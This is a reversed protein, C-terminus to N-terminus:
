RRDMGERAGEHVTGHGPEKRAPQQVADGGRGVREGRERSADGPNEDDGYYDNYGNDVGERVVEPQVSGAPKEAAGTTSSAPQSQDLPVVDVVNPRIDIEKAGATPQDSFEVVGQQDVSEYAEQAGVAFSTTIIATFILIHHNSNM